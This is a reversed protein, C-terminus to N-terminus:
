FVPKVKISVNYICALWFSSLYYYFYHQLYIVQGDSVKPPRGRSGCMKKVPSGRKVGKPWGGARKKPTSSTHTERNPCAEKCITTKAEEEKPELLSHDPSHDQAPTDPAVDRQSTDRESGSGAGSRCGGESEKKVPVAKHEEKAHRSRKRSSKKHKRSSDSVDWKCELFM